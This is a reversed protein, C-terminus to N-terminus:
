FRLNSIIGNTLAATSTLLITTSDSYRALKVEGSGLSGNNNTAFIRRGRDIVRNSAAFPMYNLTATFPAATTASGIVGYGGYYVSFTAPVSLISYTSDFTKSLNSAHLMPQVSLPMRWQITQTIGSAVTIDLDNNDAAFEVYGSSLHTAPNTGYADDSFTVISNIYDIKSVIATTAFEGDGSTKRVVMGMSLGSYLVDENLTITNSGATLTGSVVNSSGTRNFSYSNSETTAAYEFDTYGETKFIHKITGATWTQTSSINFVVGTGGTSGGSVITFITGPVGSGANLTGTASLNPAGSLRAFSGEADMRDYYNRVNNASNQAGTGTFTITGTYPGAGSPASLTALSTIYSISQWSLFVDFKKVNLSPPAVWSYKFLDVSPSDSADTGVSIREVSSQLMNPDGYDYADLPTFRGPYPTSFGNIQAISRSGLATGFVQDYFGLDYIPSWESIRTGDQSKIRYRITLSSQPVIGLTANDSIVSFADIDKIPIVVKKTNSVM